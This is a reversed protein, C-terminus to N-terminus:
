KGGGYPNIEPAPYAPALNGPFIPVYLANLIPFLGAKM